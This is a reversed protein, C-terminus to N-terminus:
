PTESTATEVDPQPNLTSSTVPREPVSVDVYGGTAILSPVIRQAITLKLLRGTADGLRVEVGSRLVLTLETQTARVSAVRPLGLGELPAVARAADLAQGALTAGVAVEVDRKLWIRPLGGRAGRDLPGIVRGSASVLWAGSGRRAVAVPQEPTVVVNLTHPFGRDFAVGAVAPVDEVAARLAPLDLEFLSHGEVSALAKRVQAAVDAPAGQVVVGRVAFASTGRALGYAGLAAVLILLGALISKGSPALRSVDVGLKPPAKAAVARPRSRGRSGKGGAM